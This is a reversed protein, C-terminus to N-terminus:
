TACPHRLATSCFQLKDPSIRSTCGRATARSLASGRSKGSALRFHLDKNSPPKRGADVNAQKVIRMLDSASLKTRYSVICCYYRSNFKSDEALGEIPKWYTNCMVVSKCLHDTSPARLYARRRKLPWSYYEGAARVLSFSRLGSAIIKVAQASAFAEVADVTHLLIDTSPRPKQPARQRAELAEVRSTLSAIEALITAHDAPAM